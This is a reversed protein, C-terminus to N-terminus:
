FYLLYFLHFKQIKECGSANKYKGNIMDITETKSKLYAQGRAIYPVSVIM